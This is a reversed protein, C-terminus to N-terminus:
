SCCPRWIAGRSFCAELIFSPLMPLTTCYISRPDSKSFSCSLRQRARRRPELTHTTMHMSLALTLSLTESRALQTHKFYSKNELNSRRARVGATRRRRSRLAEEFTADPARRLRTVAAAPADCSMRVPCPVLVHSKTEGGGRPHRTGPALHPAAGHQRPMCPPPRPTHAERWGLSGAAPRARATKVV